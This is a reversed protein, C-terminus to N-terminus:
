FLFNPSKKIGKDLLAELVEEIHVKSLVHYIQERLEVNDINEDVVMNSTQTLTNIAKRKTKMINLLLADLSRKTKGLIRLWYDAYITMIIDTIDM